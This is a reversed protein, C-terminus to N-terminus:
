VLMGVLVSVKLSAISFQDAMVLLTFVNSNALRNLLESECLARLTVVEYRDAVVMLEAVEEMDVGELVIPAGYLFSLFKRFTDEETDLVEIRRCVVYIVRVCAGGGGAVESKCM